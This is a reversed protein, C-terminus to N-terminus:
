SVTTALTLPEGELARASLARLRAERALMAEPPGIGLQQLAVRFRHIWDHRLAAHHVNLRRIQELRAPDSDLQGIVEGIDPCDFPVEIVADPWDFQQAFHDARPPVGIMVTGAAAGEYFRGSIEDSGSTFEPENIRSRNAVYYRSHQLLSAFLLRHEAPSHVHFTRQKQDIGSPAMTDYYYFIRRDRALRILAEHTVASRRGINCVDIARVPPRPYPSFQLVDVALGLYTCPRGVIRAMEAAPHRIGLFVHDFEALLELLYHPMLHFAAENLYCAAMRCRKRWDPVLALAYLEYPHNFVPFFLDYERQLRVTPPTPTVLRAFRRSGSAMRAAKYSRRAAELAGMGGVDLRDGGTVEAVIDEFEYNMCHAVANNVRRM